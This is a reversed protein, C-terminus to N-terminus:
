GLVGPLCSGQYGSNVPGAQSGPGQGGSGVALTPSLLSAPLRTALPSPRSLRNRAPMPAKQGPVRGKRGGVSRNEPRETGGGSVPDVGAKGATEEPAEAGLFRAPVAALPLLRPHHPPLCASKPSGGM